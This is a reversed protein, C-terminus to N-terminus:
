MLYSEAAKAIQDSEERDGAGYKVIHAAVADAADLIEAQTMPLKLLKVQAASPSERRLKMNCANCLPKDEEGNYHTYIEKQKGCKFCVQVPRRRKERVFEEFSIKTTM